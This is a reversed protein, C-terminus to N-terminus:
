SFKGRCFPCEDKEKLWKNICNIHIKQYCNKCHTVSESLKETCIPCDDCNLNFFNKMIRLIRRKTVYRIKHNPEVTKKIKEICKKYNDLENINDKIEKNLLKNKEKLKVYKKELYGIDDKLDNCTDKLTLIKSEKSNIIEIIIKKTNNSCFKLSNYISNRNEESCNNRLIENLENNIINKECIM